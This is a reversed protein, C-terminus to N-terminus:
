TWFSYHMKNTKMVWIGKQGIGSVFVQQVLFTPYTIFSSHDVEALPVSLTGTMQFTTM